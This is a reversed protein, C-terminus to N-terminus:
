HDESMTFDITGGNEIDNHTIYSKHYPANNLKVSKIFLNDNPANDAKITFTKGKYYKPNLHLIVKSFVPSGFRFNGSLPNAPYFGMASFVYWASLAGCDDNGPLGGPSTNYNGNMGERVAKQTRWDEGKFYTFLYPYAIDPENYLVVKNGDFAQQLRKVYISNGGMLKSLGMPDYSISFLYNWATGEIFGTGKFEDPDFPQYWNGDENRPRLFGTTSDYLNKYYQSRASFIKYDKENNLIKALKAISYDAMNYELTMSVSGRFGSPVYHHSLYEKLAPRIPNNVTDIANHKMAEYALSVDFNHIGNLYTETFVNPAPDGVMIHADEGALEWKPLWHNEKYMALLSEIMDHEKEPYFLTLFIHENRYTDWLSYVHYHTYGKARGIGKHGMMLYDGNVDSFVSPHILMHSLGTYFITKEAQTGGEVQIRSLYYNWLSRAKKRVGIFDWGPQETKLNLRANIVSVYSIGIKVYVTKGKGATSKYQLYAGVGRGSHEKIKTIEKAEWTGEDDAPESFMAVFYVKQTQNPAGCFHGSETWGEVENKSVIKVNGLAPMMRNNLTVSADILINLNANGAPFAFKSISTHITATMEAGIGSPQLVTKYYGPTANEENYQSRYAEPKTEIKGTTPMIVVNGLDSCGVGSLHVQGFGYLYPDGKIYGSKSGPTTYPSPSVMGWPVVAGPFTEGNKWNVKSSKQNATGIFPNVYDVPQLQAKVEVNGSIIFLLIIGGIRFKKTKM